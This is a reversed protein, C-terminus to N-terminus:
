PTKPLNTVFKKITRDIIEEHGSFIDHTGGEIRLYTTDAGADKSLQDSHRVPIMQDQTGHVILLPSHKSRALKEAGIHMDYYMIGPYIQLAPLKDYGAQVLDTYPTVLITASGYNRASLEAAVGTGLSLGCQIIHANDYGSQQIVFKYAAEGDRLLAPVDCKGESRGFSRYDYAFVSLNENLLMKLVLPNSTLNGGQGHHVITIYKAGPKKFLWGHLKTGDAARFFEDSAQVGSINSQGYSGIPYKIPHFLLFHYLQKCAIPSLLLYAFLCTSAAIFFLFKTFKGIILVIRNKPLKGALGSSQKRATQVM